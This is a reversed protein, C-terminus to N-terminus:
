RNRPQMGFFLRLKSMQEQRLYRTYEASVERKAGTCYGWIFGALRVMGGVVYPKALIRRAVRFLEFVPHTGFYHDMLGGRFTYRMSGFGAGTPRHHFAKLEPISKVKWGMMRLRVCAHSDTGGWSFPEYGGLFELGKRRFMQVGHAVSSISNGPRNKFEGDQMEYIYGGAMGLKPDQAFKDLLSRFYDAELTIDADLNGIFDLPLMKLKAFGRNIANVQATFNRPHDESIRDLQIFDYKAAYSRVIEDTRDTSGDSVIIWKQPRLTQAVISQITQDMIKEENYAATALGYSYSGANTSQQTDTQM